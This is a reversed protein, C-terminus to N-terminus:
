KMESVSANPVSTSARGCNPPGHSDHYGTVNTIANVHTENKEVITDATTVRHTARSCAGMAKKPRATTAM